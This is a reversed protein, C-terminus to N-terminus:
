LGFLHESIYRREKLDGTRLMPLHRPVRDEAGHASEKAQFLPSKTLLIENPVNVEFKAKRTGGM